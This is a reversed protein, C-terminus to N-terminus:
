AAEAEEEVYALAEGARFVRNRPRLGTEIEDPSFVFGDDAPDYHEEEFHHMQVLDLAQGLEGEECSALIRRM